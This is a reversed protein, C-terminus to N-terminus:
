STGGEAEARRILDYVAQRSTVGALKALEDVTLTGEPVKGGHPRKPADALARGLETLAGDEDARAREVKRRAAKIRRRAEAATTTAM